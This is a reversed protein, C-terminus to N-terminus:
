SSTIEDNGYGSTGEATRARSYLRAALPPPVKLRWYAKAASTAPRGARGDDMERLLAGYGKVAEERLYLGFDHCARPSLLYAVLGAQALLAQARAARIAFRRGCCFAIRDPPVRRGRAVRARRCANDLCIPCM